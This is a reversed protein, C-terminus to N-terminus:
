GSEVKELERAIEGPRMTVIVGEERLEGLPSSMQNRLAYSSSGRGLKISRGM